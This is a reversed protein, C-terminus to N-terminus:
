LLSPRNLNLVPSLHRQEMLEVLARSGKSLAFQREADTIPQLWLLNVSEGELRLGDAFGDPEFFPPLFFATTLQSGPAIPRPPNGNPRTQGVSLWTDYEFPLRAMSRLLEVEFRPTSEPERHPVYMLLEARALSRDTGPPLNMPLDSMGSTILTNFSRNREPSPPYIYVNIPPIQSLVPECVTAHPGLWAEYHLERREARAPLNAQGLQRQHAWIPDGSPAVAERGDKGFRGRLWDGISM